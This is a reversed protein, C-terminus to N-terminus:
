GGAKSKRFRKARLKKRRAESKAEKPDPCLPGGFFSFDSSLNANLVMTQTTTEITNTVAQTLTYTTQMRARDARAVGEIATRLEDGSLDSTEDIIVFASQDPVLLEKL